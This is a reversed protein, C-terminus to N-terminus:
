QQENIIDKEKLELRCDDKDYGFPCPHYYGYYNDGREMTFPCKKCDGREFNNPVIVVAYKM